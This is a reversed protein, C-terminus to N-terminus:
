MEMSRAAKLKKALAKSRRLMTWAALGAVMIGGFFILGIVIVLVTRTGKGETHVAGRVPFVTVRFPSSIVPIGGITIIINDEQPKSVQASTYRFLVISNSTNAGESGLVVTPTSIHSLPLTTQFKLFSPDATIGHAISISCNLTQKGITYVKSCGEFKVVEARPPTGMMVSVPSGMVEKYVVSSTNRLVVFVRMRCMYVEKNYKPSYLLFVSATNNLMLSTRNEDVSKFTMYISDTIDHWKNDSKIREFVVRFDHRAFRVPGYNDFARVLCLKGAVNHCQLLAQGTPPFEPYSMPIAITYVDSSSTLTVRIHFVDFTNMLSSPATYNFKLKRVGSIFAFTGANHDESFYVDDAHSIAPAGGKDIIDAECLTSERLTLWDTDCTIAGLRVPPWVLVDVTISSNRISGRGSDTAIVDIRLTTGKSASVTFGVQSPDEQRKLESVVVKASPDKTTVRVSFNSLNFASIPRQLSDMAYILCHIDKNVEVEEPQCALISEELTTGLAGHLYLATALLLITCIRVQLTNSKQYM